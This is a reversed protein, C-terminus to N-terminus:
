VNRLLALCLVTVGARGAWAAAVKADNSANPMVANSAALGVKGGAWYGVGISACLKILGM